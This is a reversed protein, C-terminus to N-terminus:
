YKATFIYCSTMDKMGSFCPTESFSILSISSVTSDRKGGVAGVGGGLCLIELNCIM